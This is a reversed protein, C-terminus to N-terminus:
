VCFLDYFLEHDYRLLKQHPISRTCSKILTFLISLARPEVIACCCVKSYESALHILTCSDKLEALSASGLDECVDLAAQLRYKLLLTPEKIAKWEVDRVRLRCNIEDDNSM